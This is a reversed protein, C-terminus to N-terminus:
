AKLERRSAVCEVEGVGFLNKPFEASISSITSVMNLTFFEKPYLDLAGRKLLKKPTNCHTLSTQKEAGSIGSRAMMLQM